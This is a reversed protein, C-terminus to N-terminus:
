PCDAYAYSLIIQTSIMNASIGLIQEQYHNYNPYQIIHSDFDYSWLYKSSFWEHKENVLWCQAYSIEAFSLIKQDDPISQNLISKM